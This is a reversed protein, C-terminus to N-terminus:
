GSLGPFKHRFPGNRRHAYDSRDSVRYLGIGTRSIVTQPVDFLFKNGFQHFNVFQASSNTFACGILRAYTYATIYTKQVLTWYCEKSLLADIKTGDSILWVYYWTNAALSGTDLGGAGLSDGYASMVLESGTFATYVESAGLGAINPLVASTTVVDVGLGVSGPDVFISLGTPPPMIQPVMPESDIAYVYAGDTVCELVDGRAFTVEQGKHGIISGTALGSWWTSFRFTTLGDGIVVKFFHGATMDTFGTITTAQTNATKYVTALGALSPTATNMPLTVPASITAGMGSSPSSQTSIQDYLESVSLALQQTQMTLYDLAAEVVEPYFGGQNSLETDQVCPVIRQITISWGAALPSGSLPYTVTGGPTSDSAGAIGNGIGTVSYQSSQLLTTVVPDVNNNTVYVQLYAANGVPFPYPFSTTAGNGQYTVYNQTTTLM